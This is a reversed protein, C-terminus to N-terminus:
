APEETDPWAFEVVQWGSPVDLDGLRTQYGHRMAILDVQPILRADIYRERPLAHVAATIALEQDLAGCTVGAVFAADDFPGGTSAVIVFPMVLDYQEDDPPGDAATM